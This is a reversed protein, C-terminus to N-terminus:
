SREKGRQPWDEAFFSPSLLVIAFRCRALGEDIKERLSDGITLTGEDFWVKIGKRKLVPYLPRAIAKKIKLPMRYSFTTDGCEALIPSWRADRAVTRVCCRAILDRTPRRLPGTFM